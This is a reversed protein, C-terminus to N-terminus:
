GAGMRMLLVTDGGRSVRINVGGDRARKQFILRDGEFCSARFIVDIRRIDLSRLEANSFSSIVSRVYATNNMHGGVDIDTSLVTHEFCRDNEEFDEPIRAYPGPCASPRSYSLSDPYIDNLLAPRRTVTNIVAWETKGRIMVEGDRELEYSRDGRVKEPAEPWTRVTVTQGMHPRATFEVRTKVTLWFLDKGTLDGIGIGLRDAHASAANMFLGFADHYSLLGSADCVSPGIEIEKEYIEDM